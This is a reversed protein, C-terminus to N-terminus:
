LIITQQPSTFISKKNKRWRPTMTVLTDRALRYFPSKNLSIKKENPSIKNWNQFIFLFFWMLHGEKPQIEKRPFSRFFSNKHGFRSFLSQRPWVVPSIVGSTIWNVATGRRCPRTASGIRLCFVFHITYKKKM